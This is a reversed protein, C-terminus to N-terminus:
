IKKLVAALSRRVVPRSIVELGAPRAAALEEEFRAVKVHGAPEAFLVTGGPTLSSAIERFFSGPSPVEHVVAFALAFDATGRLDDLSLHDPNALRTEILNALQLKEARRRLRRLMQPQIDVAIVRGNPRVMRALPLTFFGMGPGPELVTMGSHVYPRLLDEPDESLWRRIPGTLFYGLWWPCVHEAM